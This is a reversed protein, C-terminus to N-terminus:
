SRLESVRSTFAKPGSIFNRPTGTGILPLHSLLQKTTKHNNGVTDENANLHPSTQLLCLIASTCYKSGGLFSGWGAFTTHISHHYHPSVIMPPRTNYTVLNREFTTILYSDSTLLSSKDAEISAPYPNLPYSFFAHRPHIYQSKQLSPRIATLPTGLRGSNRWFSRGRAFFYSVSLKYIHQHDSPESFQRICHFGLHLVGIAM